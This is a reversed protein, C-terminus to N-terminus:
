PCPVPEGTPKGLPQTLEAFLEPDAYIDATAQWSHLLNGLDTLREASKGDRSIKLFGDAFEQLEKEPLPKTWPFRAALLASVPADPAAAIDLLVDVVLDEWPTPQWEDEGPGDKVRAEFRRILIVPEGFSPPEDEFQLELAQRLASLAEEATQGQSTVEVEACRAVFLRDDETVVATFQRMVRCDLLGEEPKWTM